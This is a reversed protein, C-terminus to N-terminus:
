FGNRRGRLDMGVSSDFSSSHRLLYEKMTPIVFSGDSTAEESGGAVVGSRTYRHLGLDSHWSRSGQSLLCASDVPRKAM